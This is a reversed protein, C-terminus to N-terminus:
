QGLGHSPLGVHGEEGDASGIKHLHEHAYTRGADTVEETLGLLFGGADYENVFNVGHATGTGLVATERGVVLALVSQVLEKCLHVTEAGVATDNHQGGGVPGIDQVLRQHTGAAEVTLNVHFQRLELLTLFDELYVQPVDLQSVVKVHGEHGLM